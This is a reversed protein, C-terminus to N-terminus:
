AEHASNVRGLREENLSQLREAVEPLEMQMTRFDTGFMCYVEITSDAVVTATRRSDEAFLAGEGFVAGAELTELVKGDLEAHATGSGLVFFAYGHGGVKAPSAGASYQEIEMRTTLTQLVEDSLGAFLPVQTLQAIEPHTM